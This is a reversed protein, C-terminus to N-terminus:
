LRVRAVYEVDRLRSEPAREIRNEHLDITKVDFTDRRVVAMGTM